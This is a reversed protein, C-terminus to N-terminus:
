KRQRKGVRDRFVLDAETVGLNFGAWRKEGAKRPYLDCKENRFDHHREKCTCRWPKNEQLTKELGRLRAICEECVLKSGRRKYEDLKARPFKM